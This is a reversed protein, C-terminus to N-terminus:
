SGKACSLSTKPESIKCAARLKASRSRPNRMVEESSATIPKRHLVRWCSEETLSQPDVPLYRSRPIKHASGQFFEKVIRDELSHFTVVILRGGIKLIQEAAALGNRLEELEDNIFIRLAMFTKTAPDTGGKNGRAGLAGRVLSALERTRVIPAEM